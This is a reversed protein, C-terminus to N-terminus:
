SIAKSSLGICNCDYSSMEPLATCNAFEHCENTACWDVRFVAMQVWNAGPGIQPYAVQNTTYIAYWTPFGVVGLDTPANSGIWNRSWLGM